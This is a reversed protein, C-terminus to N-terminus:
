VKLTQEESRDVDVSQEEIRSMKNKHNFLTSTLGNLSTTPISKKEIDSESVSHNNLSTTKESTPNEFYVPSIAEDPIITEAIEEIKRKGTNDKEKDSNSVKKTKLKHTIYTTFDKYKLLFHAHYITKAISTLFSTAAIAMLTIGVPTAIGTFFLAMGIGAMVLSSLFLGTSEHLGNKHKQKLYPYRLFTNIQKLFDQNPKNSLPTDLGINTFYKLVDCANILLAKYNEAKKILADMVDNSEALPDVQHLKLLNDSHKLYLHAGAELRISDLVVKERLSISKRYYPQEVYRNGDNEIYFTDHKEKEKGEKDFFAVEDIQQLNLFSKKKDELKYISQRSLVAKNVQTEDLLISKYYQLFEIDIEEQTPVLDLKPKM